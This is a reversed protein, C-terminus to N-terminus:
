LANAPNDQQWKVLYGKGAYIVAPPLAKGNAGITVLVTINERTGAQQQCQIKKGKAGIVREWGEGGNAQFGSEDMAWTCEPDIPEGGDGRLQTEEVIDYWQTNTHENVAQGRATDIPSSTYVHLRDSHREVFRHTWQKGVGMAPFKKGLRARCIQDVHEKVRRHSLGYGWSAVEIIYAVVEEAEERLLWSKENNFTALVTGGNSLNRLTTYNLSIRKGKELFYQKEFHSCVRRLGMRKDGAPKGQEQQYFAVARAMLETHEERALQTKKTASLAKRPM